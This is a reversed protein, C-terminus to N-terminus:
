KNEKNNYAIFINCKNALIAAICLGYIMSSKCEKKDAFITSEFHKNFEESNIYNLIKQQFEKLEIFEDKGKRTFFIYIDDYLVKVTWVPFGDKHEHQQRLKTLEIDSLNTNYLDM